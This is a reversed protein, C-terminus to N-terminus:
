KKRRLVRKLVPKPILWLHDLVFWNFKMTFPNNYSECFEFLANIGIREYAQWFKDSNKNNAWPKILSKNGSIAEKMEKDVTIVRDSIEEFLRRGKSSNIICCSIGKETNRTKYEFSRYAWFDSLTVDGERNLCAYRCESCSPRLMIDKAFAIMYPDQTKMKCYSSGNSFDVRLSYEKWSPKKTRFSVFQAKEANHQCLLYDLYDAWVKPSPVGHCVLDVCILNDYELGVYKKLAAVQCGTGVFMVWRGDLLIQKVRRYIYNPSSQVYKSGCFSYLGDKSDCVDFHVRHFDDTFKSACVVGGKSLVAEAMISFLGGSSSNKRIRKDKSWAAKVQHTTMDPNHSEGVYSDVSDHSMDENVPCYRMCAGCNVCKEAQIQPYYFGNGNPVMKIADSACVNYCLMCGTCLKNNKAINM